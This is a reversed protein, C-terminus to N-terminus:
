ACKCLFVTSINLDICPCTYGVKLCRTDLTDIQVPIQTVYKTDHLLSVAGQRHIHRYCPYLPNGPQKNNLTHCLLGTIGRLACVMWEINEVDDQLTININYYCHHYFHNCYPQLTTTATTSIHYYCHIFYPQLTTTLCNYCPQLM